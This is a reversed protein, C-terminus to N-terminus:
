GTVIEGSIVLLSIKVPAAILTPVALQGCPFRVERGFSEFELGYSLVGRFLFASEKGKIRGRKGVQVVPAIGPSPAVM